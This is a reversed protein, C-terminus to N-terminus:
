EPPVRALLSYKEEPHDRRRVVEFGGAALWERIEAPAIRHEPPPGVEGPADPHYEVVLVRSGAPLARGLEALVRAPDDTHHLVFAALVGVPQSFRLALAEADTVVPRVNEVGQDAMERRLYRLAGPSRDLAYVPGPAVRESLRLATYGPGSGVEVVADGSGLGLAEAFEPVVGGREVQRRYVEAWDADHLREDFGDDSM